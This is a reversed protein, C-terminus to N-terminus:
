AFRWRTAGHPEVLGLGVATHITFRYLYWPPRGASQASYPATLADDAREAPWGGERFAAALEDLEAPDTTRHAEGEFVLDVEPLRFSLACAPNEALNRSKRTGPGSTFYLTGGHAIAGIGTSHPRADSGATALFAATEARGIGASAAELAVKWPLEADGYINLDTAEIPDPLM